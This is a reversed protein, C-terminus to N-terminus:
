IKICHFSVSVDEARDGVETVDNQIPFKYAPFIIRDKPCGIIVIEDKGIRITVGCGLILGENNELGDPSPLRGM